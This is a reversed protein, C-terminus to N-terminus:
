RHRESTMQGISNEPDGIRNGETSRVPSHERDVSASEDVHTEASSLSEKKFKIRQEYFDVLYRPALERLEFNTYEREKPRKGDVRPKWSVTFVLVNSGDEDKFFRAYRVNDALDGHRFDGVSKDENIPINREYNRGIDELLNLKPKKQPEPTNSRPEAKVNNKPKLKKLDKERNRGDLFKDILHRVKALNEQPEWTSEDLSYGVWKVLFYLDGDETKMDLIGEVEYEKTKSKKKKKEDTNTRKSSSHATVQSGNHGENKSPRVKM